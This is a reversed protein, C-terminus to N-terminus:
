AKPIRAVLNAFELELASVPKHHGLGVMKRVRREEGLTTKLLRAWKPIEMISKQTLIETDCKKVFARIDVRAAGGYGERRPALTESTKKGEEISLLDVWHCTKCGWAHVKAHYGIAQIHEEKTAYSTESACLPCSFYM